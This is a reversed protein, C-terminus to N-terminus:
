HHTPSSGPSGSSSSSAPSATLGGSPHTTPSTHQNHINYLLNAGELQDFLQLINPVLENSITCLLTRTMGINPEHGDVYRGLNEVCFAQLAVQYALFLPSNTEVAMLLPSAFRSDDLILHHTNLTGPCAPNHLHHAYPVTRTPSMESYVHSITITQTRSPFAKPHAKKYAFLLDAVHELNAEPEWSDEASSYGKWHMLYSRNRTFGWHAIIAEVEYEEETRILDAPPRTYNPGHVDNKCYPSLLSAHFTNYIKWKSPISLCYTVPSLAKSISFPGERKPAFKCNEYLCKLNCAELWVKDGKIFPTFKSSNRDKMAKCALDHTAVAEKRAESLEKICDKAVPILTESIVSPLPRPEYSYM